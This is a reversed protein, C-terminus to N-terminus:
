KINNNVEQVSHFLQNSLFDFIYLIYSSSDKSIINYFSYRLEPFPLKQVIGKYINPYQVNKVM